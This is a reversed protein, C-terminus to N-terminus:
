TLRSSPSSFIAPSSGPRPAPTRWGPPGRSGRSRSGRRRDVVGSRGLQGLLDRPADLGLQLVRSLDLDDHDTLRPRHVKGASSISPMATAFAIRASRRRALDRREPRAADRGAEATTSTPSSGALAPRRGCSPAPTRPLRRHVVLRMRSGASVVSAATSSSTSRSLASARHVADEHLHRQRLWIDLWRTIRRMAGAFSTSPKWGTFTPLTNTPSGLPKRGARRRAHLSISTRAPTSVDPACATITPREFMTPLGIAASNSWSPGPPLAVTVTHWERM